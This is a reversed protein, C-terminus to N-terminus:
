TIIGMEERDMIKIGVYGRAGTKAQRWRDFGRIQLAASLRKRSKVFGGNSNAWERYDRFLDAMLVKSTPDKETRLRLWEGIDDEDEFYEATFAAAVPPVVIEGAAQWSLCGRIMWALIGPWEHELKDDLKKDIHAPVHTFPVMIIRRVMAPDVDRIEPRHNGVFLLKFQPKFTFNNERMFRATIPDGGTLAKVKQEDWRKGGETEQATVLRAGALMAVDTSHKDNSSATFTAMDAQKWYDKFIGSVARLLTGKGNGGPGWIFGFIQEETSGSLCYGTLEQIFRQLPADGATVDTLFKDWVPTPMNFDPAVATAKSCLQDPNHPSVNGTRLNVLGGPTNLVWPEYDFAEVNVAIQRDMQVLGKVAGVKGASCIIKAEIEASKLEKASGGARAMIDAAISRLALKVKDEALLDSDEKWKGEDWVYFMGRQKSYRVEGRLQEVVRDALWQDSNVIADAGPEPLSPPGEMTVDFELAADAYGYKRAREALWTWGVHYPPRLSRWDSRVQDPPNVGGVWRAAWDAYAAFGEEENEGCAARIAAGMKIYDDRHPFADDNPILAVAEHLAEISPARLAEQDGAERQRTYGDGERVAVGYGEMELYEALQTLFADAKERTIETLKAPICLGKWEYPRQTSPHIGDVVFQQGAGLIEVLHQQDGRRVFLRMRGFPEATRYMLLRKPARGTRTPAPGLKALALTEVAQALDADLSDIDVGPYRDARLGFSAGDRIWQKVDDATADHRQWGYGAWMGNALRRGPAKGLSAHAIKSSPTLTATPPIVSVLDIYGADYLREPIPKENM